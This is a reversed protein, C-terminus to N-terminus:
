ANMFDLLSAEARIGNELGPWSHPLGSLIRSHSERPAAGPEHASGSFWRYRSLLAKPNAPCTFHTLAEEGRQGGAEEGGRKEAAPANLVLFSPLFILRLIILFCSYNQLDNILHNNLWASSRIESARIWGPYSM